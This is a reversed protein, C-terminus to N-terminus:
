IKDLRTKGSRTWYTFFDSCGSAATASSSKLGLGGPIALLAFRGAILASGMM